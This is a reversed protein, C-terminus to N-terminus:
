TRSLVPTLKILGLLPLNVKHTISFLNNNLFLLNSSTKLLSISLLKNNKSIRSKTNQTWKHMKLSLRPVTKPNPILYCSTLNDRRM